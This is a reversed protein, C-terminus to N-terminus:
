ATARAVTGTTPLSLKKMALDGIGGGVSHSNVVVTGTYKPNSTSVSGGDARVEFTLTPTTSFFATSLVSDVSSVAYDDLAELELTGKRLGAIFEEWTDGMTESNQTAVELSLAISRFWSSRDSGGLAIYANTLVFAAM